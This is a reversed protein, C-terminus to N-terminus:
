KKDKDKDKEEDEDAKGSKLVKGDADVKVEMKTGDKTFQGEYYAKGEKDKGEVVKDIKNDGAEKKIADAAPAPIKDISTTKENEEDKDKDKDEARAVFSAAGILGLAILCILTWQNRM